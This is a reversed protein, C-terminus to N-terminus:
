DVGLNEELWSSGLLLCVGALQSTVNLLLAVTNWPDDQFPM